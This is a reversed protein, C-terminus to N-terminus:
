TWGEGKLVIIVTYLFGLLQFITALLWIWIAVRYNWPSTRKDYKQGPVRWWWTRKERVGRYFNGACFIAGGLFCLSVAAIETESPHAKM